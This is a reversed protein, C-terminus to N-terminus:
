PERIIFDDVGFTSRYQDVLQKDTLESYGAIGFRLIADVWSIDDQYIMQRISEIDNGVIADITEKRPLTEYDEIWFSDIVEYGLEANYEYLHIDNEHHKLAEFRKLAESETPFYEWEEDHGDSTSIGYPLYDM